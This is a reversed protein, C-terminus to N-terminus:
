EQLNAKETTNQLMVIATQERTLGPIVENMQTSLGMSTNEAKGPIHRM